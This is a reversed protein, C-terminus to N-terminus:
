HLDMLEQAHKVHPDKDSHNVGHNIPAVSSGMPVREPEWSTSDHHLSLDRIRRTLLSTLEKQKNMEARHQKTQEALRQAQRNMVAELIAQKERAERDRISAKHCTNYLKNITTRLQQNEEQVLAREKEAARVQAQAATLPIYVPSTEELPSMGDHTGKTQDPQKSNNASENEEDEQDSLKQM